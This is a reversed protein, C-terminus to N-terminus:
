HPLLSYDMRLRILIISPKMEMGLLKSTEEVLTLLSSRYKLIHIHSFFRQATPDLCFAMSIVDPVLNLSSALVTFLLLMFWFRKTLSSILLHQEDCKCKLTRRYHNNNSDPQKNKYIEFLFRSASVAKGPPWTPLVLSFRDGQRDFSIGSGFSVISISLCWCLM